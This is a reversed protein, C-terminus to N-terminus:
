DAQLTLWAVLQEIELASLRTRGVEEDPAAGYRGVDYYAPMKTDPARVRPAVIMLRVAGENLRRGVDSLDPGLDPATEFGRARHCADCGASAFVAAGDDVDVPADSLPEGIEGANTVTYDVPPAALAPLALFLCPILARNM